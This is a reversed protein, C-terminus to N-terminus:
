NKTNQVMLTKTIKQLTMLIHIAEEIVEGVIPDTNFESLLELWYVTEGAEQKAIFIKNRFDARSVAYQSEAYNAGISTSSRVLQDIVPRSVITIKTDKCLRLVSRSFEITRIKLPQVSNVSM